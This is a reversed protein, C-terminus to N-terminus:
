VYKRYKQSAVGATLRPGCMLLHLVFGASSASSHSRWCRGYAVMLRTGLREHGEGPSLVDPTRLLYKEDCVGHKSFIFRLSTDCMVLINSHRRHWVDCAFGKWAKSGM